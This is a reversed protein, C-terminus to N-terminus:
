KKGVMEEATKKHALYADMAERAIAIDAEAHTIQAKEEALISFKRKQELMFSNALEHSQATSKAIQHLKYAGWASIFALMIVQFAQIASEFVADGIALLMM